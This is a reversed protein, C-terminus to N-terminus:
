APCRRGTLVSPHEIASFVLREVPPGVGRRLGPTLALANADTGGSTFIVNRPQAGVAGSITARAEEVLKRAQRGEAHVSSPNGSLDWAVAMAERAEPRRPATANWDPYIRDPM